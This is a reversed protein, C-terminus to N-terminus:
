IIIEITNEIIKPVYKFGVYGGKYYKDNKDKGLKCLDKDYKFGMRKLGEKIEKDTFDCEDCEEFIFKHAIKENADIICFENFWLGFPDNNLQTEKADKLFEAPINPLKLNNIYYKHAYDIILQFVADFYDNKIKDGLTTDAIFLLKEPEAVLRNGTRDFHSAYSIQKYRNYVAVDNPDIDPMNNTLAFLKFMINIKESTGFMVENETTLGDGLEKILDPNIKNKGFEDLWVLRRGKLMALQKHVKSNNLEILSGKSKYVYNPLLHSIIDFYFTKGNDGSSKATKDICFYLSKELNPKGIFCFGIVSLYYELHEANNNLIEKLISKVYEIGEYDVNENYDYPITETIFDDHTIGRKFIKTELDMIGNKFALKGVNADLKAEFDADILLTKLYKTLVSLYGGASILKYSKLYTKSIEINKEKEVGETQSIKLVITKNSYDIYKRLENIIYFSPEKEQKWLNLKSLMFWKENCFVLTNNLSSHIIEATKYPDEIENANIFLNTKNNNEDENLKPIVELQKMNQRKRIVDTLVNDYGKFKYNIGMGMENFIFENLEKIVEDENYNLNYPPLNLGDYEVGQKRPEIINKNQLFQNALYTAHNEFIGCFYSVVKNKNKYDTNETKSIIELLEPNNEILISKFKDCDIKFNTYYKHLSVNDLKKPPYGKDIDGSIINERWKSFGGGYITLNFLYKIDDKDLPIEGKVSYYKILESCIIDFNEIYHKIGKFEVNNLRGIECIITPHGKVQDIDKWGLFRLITHKIIRPQVILSHNNDPYFRGLKYRQNHVVSLDNNVLNDVIQSKFNNKMIPTLRKDDCELIMDCLPKDLTEIYKGEFYEYPPLKNVLVKFGDLFPIKTQKKISNLANETEIEETRKRNMEQHQRIKENREISM